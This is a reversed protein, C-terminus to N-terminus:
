LIKNDYEEPTYFEAFPTPKITLGDEEFGNIEDYLTYLPKEPVDFVLDIEDLYAYGSNTLSGGTLNVYDGKTDNYVGDYSVFLVPEDKLYNDGLCKVQFNDNLKVRVGYALRNKKVAM